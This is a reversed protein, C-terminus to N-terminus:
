TQFQEELKQYANPNQIFYANNVSLYQNHLQAQRVSYKKHREEAVTLGHSRTTEIDNMHMFNGM